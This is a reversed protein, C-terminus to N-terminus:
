VDGEAQTAPLKATFGNESRRESYYRSKIGRHVAERDNDILERLEDYTRGPFATRIQYDYYIIGMSALLSPKFVRHYWSSTDTYLGYAVQLHEEDLEDDMVNLQSAAKKYAKHYREKFTNFTM